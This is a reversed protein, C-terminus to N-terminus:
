YLILPVIVFSSLVDHITIITLKTIATISEGNNMCHVFFWFSFYIASYSDSTYIYTTSLSKDHNIESSDSIEETTPILTPNTSFANLNYILATTIPESKYQETLYFIKEIPSIKKTQNLEFGKFYDKNTGSSIGYYNSLNYSYIFFISEINTIDNVYLQDIKSFDKDLIAFTFENSYDCFFLFQGTERMYYLHFKNYSDGCKVDYNIFDLFNNNEISYITCFSPPQPYSFCVLSKKKDSSVVSKIVKISSAQYQFMKTNSSKIISFNNPNIFFQFLELPQKISIFCDIYDNKITKSMVQCSLGYEEIQRSNLDHGSYIDSLLLHM